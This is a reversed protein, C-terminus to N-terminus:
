AAIWRSRPGLLAGSCLSATTRSCLAGVVRARLLLALLRRSGVRSAPGRQAWEDPEEMYRLCVSAPVESWYRMEGLAFDRVHALLEDIEGTYHHRVMADAAYGLHQGRERLAIALAWPAFDGYRSPMGGAARYVDTRIALSHILVKRWHDDDGGLRLHRDYTDRELLGLPGHGIGVSVGRAGPQGSRALHGLMRELCDPDPVCHVETLFLWPSGAIQAGADFLAYEDAGPIAHWRDHPAMLSRALEELAADDGPALFVLRYRSRDLTQECWARLSQEGFGRAEQLPLLVAVDPGATM